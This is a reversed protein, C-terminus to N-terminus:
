GERYYFYGGHLPLGGTLAFFPTLDPIRVFIRGISAERRAADLARDYVSFYSLDVGKEAQDNEV